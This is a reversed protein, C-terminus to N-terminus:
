GRRVYTYIDDSLWEKGPRKYNRIQDKTPNNSDFIGHIGKRVLDSINKIGLGEQVDYMRVWFLRRNSITITHVKANTFEKVSIKFM